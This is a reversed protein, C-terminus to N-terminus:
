SYPRETRTEKDFGAKIERRPTDRHGDKRVFLKITDRSELGLKDKMHKPLTIMLQTGSKHVILNEETAWEDGNLIIQEM